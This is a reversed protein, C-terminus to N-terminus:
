EESDTAEIRTVSVLDFVFIIGDGERGTGVADYVLKVVRDLDNDEVAIEVKAKETLIGVMEVDAAKFERGFGQAKLVTLGPVNAKRLMSALRTVSKPRIVASILKM